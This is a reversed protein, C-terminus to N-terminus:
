KILKRLKQNRADSMVKAFVSPHKVVKRIFAFEESEVISGGMELESLELYKAGFQKSMKLYDPSEPSPLMVLALQFIDFYIQRIDGNFGIDLKDSLKIAEEGLKIAQSTMQQFLANETNGFKKIVHESDSILTRMQDIMKALTELKKFASRDSCSPCCCEFGWGNMLYERYVDFGLGFKSPGGYSITIESGAAISNCVSFVMLDQCSFFYRTCNPICAHNFRSGHILICGSGKEGNLNDVDDGLSFSNSHYREFVACNVSKMILKKQASKWETKHLNLIAAQTAAPLAEFQLQLSRADGMGEIRIVPREVLVKEGVAFDRLAFYGLGKGGGANRLEFDVGIEATRGCWNKHQKWDRRQCQKSCYPHKRCGGCRLPAQLPAYCFSCM